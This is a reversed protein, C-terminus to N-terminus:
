DGAAVIAAPTYERQGDWISSDNSTGPVEWTGEPIVIPEHRGAHSDPEVFMKATQGKPVVLYRTAGDPSRWDQLGVAAHHHGSEEGRAVIISEPAIGRTPNVAQTSGNVMKEVRVLTIDGQRILNPNKNTNM